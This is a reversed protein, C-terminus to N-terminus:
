KAGWADAEEVLRRRESGEHGVAQIDEAQEEEGRQEPGDAVEDILLHVRTSPPQQQSMRECVLVGSGSSGCQWIRAM